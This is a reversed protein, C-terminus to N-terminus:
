DAIPVQNWMVKKLACITVHPHNIRIVDDCASLTLVYTEEEVIHGEELSWCVKLIWSPGHWGPIARGGWDKSNERGRHARFCVCSHVSQGSPTTLAAVPMPIKKTIVALLHYLARLQSLGPVPLVQHWRPEQSECVSVLCKSGRVMWHAKREHMECTPLLRQPIEARNKSLSKLKREQLDIAEDVGSLSVLPARVGFLHIRPSSSSM